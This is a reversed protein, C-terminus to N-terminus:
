QIRGDMMSQIHASPLGLTDGAHEIFGRERETVEPSPTCQADDEQSYIWMLAHDEPASQSKLIHTAVLMRLDRIGKIIACNWGSAEKVHGTIAKCDKDTCPHIVEKLSKGSELLAAKVARQFNKGVAIEKINSGWM